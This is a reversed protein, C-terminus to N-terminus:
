AQAAERLKRAFRSEYCHVRGPGKKTYSQSRGAKIVAMDFWSLLTNKPIRKM